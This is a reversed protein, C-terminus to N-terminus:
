CSNYVWNELDYLKISMYAVSDYAQGFRELNVTTFFLPDCTTLIRAVGRGGGGRKKKWGIKVLHDLLDKM